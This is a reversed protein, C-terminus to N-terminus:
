AGMMRQLFVFSARLSPSAFFVWGFCVFHFTLAWALLNGIPRPLVAQEPRYTSWIKNVAQGAGHWMGWVVFTWNAGHWLGSITMALFLFWLGKAFGKRNGGLPIYLYDRIWSSLSIHWRRWFEGLNRSIYPWNFNEPLHYGFCQAAGIAVDSYASFDLYIKFAYAYMAVWLAPVTASAPDAFVTVFLPNLSDAFAIKKFLGIGMRFLGQQVDAATFSIKDREFSQIRKIPGAVLSPFFFIFLFFERLTVRQAKGKYVDVLYHVFEFVFFSIALPVALKVATLDAGFWQDLSTVAMKWYKYYFLLGVSFVIGAAFVSKKRSRSLTYIILTLALLLLFHALSDYAYFVFGALIMVYPRWKAPALAYVSLTIAFFVLFTYTTFIM